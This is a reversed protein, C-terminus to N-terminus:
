SITKHIFENFNNGDLTLVYDPWEKISNFEQSYNRGFSANM